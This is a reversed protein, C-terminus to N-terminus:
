AGDGMPTQLSAPRITIEFRSRWIMCGNMELRPAITLGGTLAVVADEITCEIFSFVVSKRHSAARLWCNRCRGSADCPVLFNNALPPM